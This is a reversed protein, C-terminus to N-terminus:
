LLILKLKIRLGGFTFELLLIKSNKNSFILFLIKLLKALMM